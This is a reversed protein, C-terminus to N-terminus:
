NWGDLGLDRLRNVPDFIVEDADVPGDTAPQELRETLQSMRDLAEERTLAIGVAHHNLLNLAAFIKHEEGDIELKQSVLLYPTKDHYM